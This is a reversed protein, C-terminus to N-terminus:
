RTYGAVGSSRTRKGSDLQQILPSHLSNTSAWLDLSVVRFSLGRVSSVTYVVSFRDWRLFIFIYV